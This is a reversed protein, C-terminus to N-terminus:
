DTETAPKPQHSFGTFRKTVDQACFRHKQARAQNTYDQLVISKHGYKMAIFIVCGCLASFV